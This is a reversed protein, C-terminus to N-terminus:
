WINKLFNNGKDTHVLVLSVGNQTPINSDVNEVGWFDALTIDAKRNVTKFSCNHCSPRLCMNKLFAKLYLDKQLTRCYEDGDSFQIKMSFKKWGSTKDRFSANIVNKKKKSKQYEIYKEWVMPSPVGHCIIDATILNRKQKETLINILASM